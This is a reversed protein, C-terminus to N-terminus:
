KSYKRGSKLTIGIDLLPNDPSSKPSTFERITIDPQPLNIEKFVKKIREKVRDEVFPDYASNEHIVFEAKLKEFNNTSLFRQKWLFKDVGYQPGEKININLVIGNPNSGKTKTISAFTDLYGKQKYLDRIKKLDEPFKSPYFIGKEKFWLWGSRPRFHILNEIEPIEVANNGSIIINEVYERPGSDIKVFISVFNMTKSILVEDTIKVDYYYNKLFYLGLDELDKNWKYSNFPTNIKTRFFKRSIRIESDEDDITIKKVEPSEEIKYLLSVGNSLQKAFIIIDDFQGSKMLLHVDKNITNISFPAHVRSFLNSFIRESTIRHNNTISIQAIDGTFSSAFIVTNFFFFSIVFLLRVM